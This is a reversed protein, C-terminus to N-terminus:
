SDPTGEPEPWDDPDIRALRNRFADDFAELNDVFWEMQNEWDAEDAPDMDVKLDISSRTARQDWILNPGIEGNIEDAEAQLARFFAGHTRRSLVLHVRLSRESPLRVASLNAGRKGLAFEMYHQLRPSRPKIRSGSQEVHDVFKTWFRFHSRLNGTAPKDDGTAGRAARTWDNPKSVVNFKPAPGCTGIKWLEIELAFFRVTDRTVENLWDIAARHDPKIREAIWVITVANLGAAYTLVQGIHTHNTPAIQNEILVTSQDTTDTCVLDARHEGVSEERSVVILPIDIAEGLISINEDKALWPTFNAAEDPWVSRLDVPELTQLETETM